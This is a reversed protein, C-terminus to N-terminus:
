SLHQVMKGAKKLTASDFRLTYDIVHPESMALTEASMEIEEDLVPVPIEFVSGGQTQVPYYYIGDVLMFDYSSSSWVIRATGEGGSVTMEAPSKITARGSGGSLEVEITYRGDDPLDAALAGAPFLVLAALVMMLIRIRKM